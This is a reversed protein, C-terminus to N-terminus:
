KMSAPNLRGIFIYKQARKVLLVGMLAVPMEITGGM